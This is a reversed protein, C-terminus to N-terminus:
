TCAARSRRHIVRGTSQSAILGGATASTGDTKRQTMPKQHETTHWIMRKWMAMYAALMLRLGIIWLQQKVESILVGISVNTVFMM